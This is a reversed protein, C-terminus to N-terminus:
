SFLAASRHQTVSRVEETFSRGLCRGASSPPPLRVSREASRSHFGLFDDTLHHFSVNHFAAVSVSVRVKRRQPRCSCSPWTSAGWAPWAGSCRWRWPRRNTGACFSINSLLVVHHFCSNLAAECCESWTSTVCRRCSRTSSTQSWPTNSSAQM